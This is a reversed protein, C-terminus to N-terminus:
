KECDPGVKLDAVEIEPTSLCVGLEKVVEVLLTAEVVFAPAVRGHVGNASSKECVLVLDVEEAVDPVPVLGELMARLALLVRSSLTPTRLVLIETLRATCKEETRKADLQPKYSHYIVLPVRAQLPVIPKECLICTESLMQIGKQVRGDM